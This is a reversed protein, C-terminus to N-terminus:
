GSARPDLLGLDIICDPAKPYAMRVDIRTTGAPVEFPVYHYPTEAQDARTFAATIRM